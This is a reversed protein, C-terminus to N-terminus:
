MRRYKPARLTRGVLVGKIGHKRRFRALRLDVFSGSLRVNRRKKLTNVDGYKGVASGTLYKKLNRTSM